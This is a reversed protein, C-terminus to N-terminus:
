PARRNGREPRRGWWEFSNGHGSLFIELGTQGGAGLGQQRCPVAGVGADARTIARQLGARQDVQIAGRDALCGDARQGAFRRMVAIEAGQAGMNAPSARPLAGLMLVGMATTAGLGALRTGGSAFDMRAFPVSQRASGSWEFISNSSLSICTKTGWYGM